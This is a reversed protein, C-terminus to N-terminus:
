RIEALYGAKNKFIIKKKDIKGETADKGDKDYVVM